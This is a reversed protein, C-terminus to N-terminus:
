EFVERLACAFGPLVDGATLVGDPAVGLESGDAFFITARRQKPEVLWAVRVGAELWDHIKAVATTRRDGPSMIEAVLDPAMRAYGTAPIQAVRSAAVFAVDPGLVTDPGTAIVFGTDQGFVVGLRHAFVFRTV